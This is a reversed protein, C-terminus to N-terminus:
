LRQHHRVTGHLWHLKSGLTNNSYTKDTDMQETLLRAFMATVEARTMNRDPGFTGDTYGALFAFHNETNLMIKENVFTVVSYDKGNMTVKEGDVTKKYSDTSVKYGSPAKKETLTTEGNYGVAAPNAVINVNHSSCFRTVM